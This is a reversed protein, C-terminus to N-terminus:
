QISTENNVEVQVEKKNAINNQQPITNRVFEFSYQLSQENEYVGPQAKAFKAMDSLSLVNKLSSMPKEDTIHPKMAEIIESSTMEVANVNYRAEFYERLIDTLQTYYEKIDGKQWVQQNKLEELKQLAIEWAPIKIKPQPKEVPAVKRRKLYYLLGYVIAGLLLLGAIWPLLERFTLPAKIIPKIDKIDAAPDIKVKFVEFLLPETTLNETIGNKQVEFTIPPFVIFGTDFSTIAISQRLVKNTSGEAIITDIPSKSIVEISKTITDGISPWIVKDSGSLPLELTVKVQGGIPFKLSDAKITQAEVIISSLLLLLVLSGSRLINNLIVSYKM